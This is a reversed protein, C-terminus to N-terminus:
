WNGKVPIKTTGVTPWDGGRFTIKLGRSAAPAKGPVIEVRPAPQDKELEPLKVPTWDRATAAKFDFLIEDPKEQADEAFVLGLLLWSAVLSIVVMKYRLM